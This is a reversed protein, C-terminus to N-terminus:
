TPIRLAREADCREEEKREERRGGVIGREGACGRRVGEYGCNVVAGM